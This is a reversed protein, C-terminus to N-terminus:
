NTLEGSLLVPFWTGIYSQQLLNLYSIGAWSIWSPLSLCYHFNKPKVWPTKPPAVCNRVDSKVFCLHGSISGRPLFKERVDGQKTTLAEHKFKSQSICNLWYRSHHRLRMQMHGSLGTNKLCNGRGPNGRTKGGIWWTIKLQNIRQVKM